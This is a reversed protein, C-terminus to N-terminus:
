RVHPAIMRDWAPRPQFGTGKDVVRGDVYLFVAPIGQVHLSSAVRQHHDTDVKAVILKGPHDRGLQTLVPSLMKCPPCWEAWFDVLVPVPSTRILKELADDDLHVPEGSTDLQAHCRGCTPHAAVKDAPLRNLGGCQPCTFYYRDDGSM